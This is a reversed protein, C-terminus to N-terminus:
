WKVEPWSHHDVSRMEHELEMILDGSEIDVIDKFRFQQEKRAEELSDVQDSFRPNKWLIDAIQANRFAQEFDAVNEGVYLAIHHGDYPPIEDSTERFLLAQESRGSKYIAGIAVIAISGTRTSPASEVVTTTADLLSEYFLAIKSASGPPCLIEVYDIGKCETEGDIGYTAAIVGWENTDCSSVIPQRLKSRQQEVSRSSAPDEKVTPIEEEKVRCVFVNGYHDKLKVFERKTLDDHGIEVSVYCSPFEKIRKKLGELSGHYYLGIQGPIRQGVAGFPLHFQSAGVNAWLTKKSTPTIAPRLNAAKRPDLGCGLVKYYFDIHDHNPINLNIHELLRLTSRDVVESDSGVVANRVIHLNYRITSPASMLWATSRPYPICLLIVRFWEILQM